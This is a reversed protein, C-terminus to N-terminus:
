RCLVPSLMLWIRALNWVAGLLAALSLLTRVPMGNLIREVMQLRRQRREHIKRVEGMVRATFDEPLVDRAM